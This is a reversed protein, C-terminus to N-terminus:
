NEIFVNNEVLGTLEKMDGVRVEDASFGPLVGEFFDFEEEIQSESDCRIKELRDHWADVHVAQVDKEAQADARSRKGSPETGDDEPENGRKLSERMEVDAPDTKGTIRYKGAGSFALQPVSTVETKQEGLHEM